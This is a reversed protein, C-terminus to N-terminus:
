SMQADLRKMLKAYSEVKRNCKRAEPGKNSWAEALSREWQIARWLAGRILRIDRRGDLLLRPTKM